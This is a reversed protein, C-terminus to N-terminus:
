QLAVVWVKRNETRLFNNAVSEAQDKNEVLVRVRYLTGGHAEVPAVLTQLGYQEALRSALAEADTRRDFAAVQVAFHPGPSLVQVPASATAPAPVAAPQQSHSDKTTPRSQTAPAHKCGAFPLLLLLALGFASQAYPRGRPKPPTGTGDM